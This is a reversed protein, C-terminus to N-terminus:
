KVIDLSCKSLIEAIRKGAKGDGYLHSPSYRVHGLQKQIAKQIAGASHGVETVNGARDRTRQRSGITVSPTGYFSSERIGASSNGVICSCKKLLALFVEPPFNKYFYFLPLKEVGLHQIKKVMHYSGADVNPYLAIVPMKLKILAKMTEGIQFSADQYETTVPHQVVLLFPQNTDVPFSHNKIYDKIYSDPQSGVKSAIDVSPCGTIFIRKPNEGMKKLRSACKANTVLHIHALKTIANRVNHDISGSTEGGQTHVLPINMYSAAVATALTEYRDAITVVADPRHNELLTPLELLGIGTSKAMTIPNEGELTIRIEEDIVFGDKLMINVAEGFRPLLMSAGVVIRLKLDKHNKIA